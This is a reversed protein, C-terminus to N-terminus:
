EAMTKRPGGASGGTAVTEGAFMASTITCSCVSAVTDGRRRLSIILARRVMLRRASLRGSLMSAVAVLRRMMKAFEDGAAAPTLWARQCLRRLRASSASRWVPRWGELAPRHSRKRQVPVRQAVPHGLDLEPGPERTEHAIAARGLDGRVLDGFGDEITIGLCEPVAGKHSGGLLHEPGGTKQPVAGDDLDVTPWRENHRNRILAAAIGQIPVGKGFREPRIPFGKECAHAIPVGEGVVKRRRDLGRRDRHPSLLDTLHCRGQGFGANIHRRDGAKGSQHLGIMGLSKQAEEVVAMM